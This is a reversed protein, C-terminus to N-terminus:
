ELLKDLCTATELTRKQASAQNHVDSNTTAMAATSSSKPIQTRLHRFFHAVKNRAEKKDVEHWGKTDKKLFRGGSDLVMTVVQEAIKTKAAKRCANYEEERVEVLYACRLNGTHERTNKGRGFLVDNKNVIISSPGFLNTNEHEQKSREEEEILERTKLWEMHWDLGLRGGPLFISRDISIGFTELKFCMEDYDTTFHERFHSRENQNYFHVKKAIIVQKASEDHGDYCWHIAKTKLPFAAKTMMYSNFLSIPDNRGPQTHIRVLDGGDKSVQWFMYWLCRIWNDDTKYLKQDPAFMMVIRGAADKTPMIQIGGSEIAKRDDTNFDSLHVDRGLIAGGGFLKKKVYFHYALQMAAM